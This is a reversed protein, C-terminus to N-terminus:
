QPNRRPRNNLLAEQFYARIGDTTNVVTKSGTGMFLADPSYLNLIGDVDSDRFAKAWTEVVQTAETKPDAMAYSPALSVLTITLLFARM